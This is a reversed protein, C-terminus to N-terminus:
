VPLVESVATLRLSGSGVILPRPMVHLTADLEGALAHWTAPTLRVQLKPSRAEPAEADTWTVDGVLGGAAPAGAIAPQVTVILPWVALRSLVAVTVDPLVVFVSRSPMQTVFGPSLTTLVASLTDTPAPLGTPKVIVAVLVPLVVSVATLRLSGSGVIVPRPM